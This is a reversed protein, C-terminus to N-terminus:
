IILSPLSYMVLYFNQAFAKVKLEKSTKQMSLKRGIMLLLVMIIIRSVVGMMFFRMNISDHYPFFYYDLIALVTFVLPIQYLYKLRRERPSFPDRLVLYLDLFIAVQLGWSLTIIFIRSCISFVNQLWM